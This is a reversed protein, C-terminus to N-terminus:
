SMMTALYKFRAGYYMARLLIGPLIKNYESDGVEPSLIGHEAKYQKYVTNIRGNKENYYLEDLPIRYVTWMNEICGSVTM